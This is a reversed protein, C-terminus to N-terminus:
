EDELVTPVDGDSLSLVEKVEAERSDAISRPSAEKMASEQETM